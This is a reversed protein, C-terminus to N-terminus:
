TMFCDLTAFLGFCETLSEDSENFVSCSIVRSGLVHLLRKVNRNWWWMMWRVSDSHVGNGLMLKVQTLKGTPHCANNGIWECYLFFFFLKPESALGIKRVRKSHSCLRGKNHRAVTRSSFWITATLKRWMEMTIERWYIVQLPPSRWRTAAWRARARVCIQAPESHTRTLTCTRTQTEPLNWAANHKHLRVSLCCIIGAASYRRSLHVPLSTRRSALVSVLWKRPAEWFTLNLGM